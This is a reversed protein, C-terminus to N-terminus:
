EYRDAGADVDGDVDAMWESVTLSMVVLMRALLSLSILSLLPTM